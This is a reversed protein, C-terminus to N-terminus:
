THFLEILKSILLKYQTEELRGLLGLILDIDVTALKNVRILSTKKLGNLASPEILLDFNSPNNINSTIFCVTVDDEHHFLVVALRNKNGSLDTFPFPILVIDGKNM